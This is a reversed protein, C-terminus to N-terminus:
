LWPQQVVKCLGQVVSALDREGDYGVLGAMVLGLGDQGSGLWYGM